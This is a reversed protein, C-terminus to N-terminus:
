LGLWHYKPTFPTLKRYCFIKEIKIWSIMFTLAKRNLIHFLETKQSETGKRLKCFTVFFIDPFTQAGCFRNVHFRKKNFIAIHKKNIETTIKLKLTVITVRTCWLKQQPKHSTHVQSFFCYFTTENSIVPSLNILMVIVRPLGIYLWSILSKEVKNGFKWSRNGKLYVKRTM